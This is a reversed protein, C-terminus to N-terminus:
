NIREFRRLSPSKKRVHIFLIIGAIADFFAAATIATEPDITVSLMPILILAPGFGSFGKLFYALFVFLLSSYLVYDM